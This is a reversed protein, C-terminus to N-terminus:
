MTFNKVDCIASAAQKGRRLFVRKAQLDIIWEMDATSLALMDKTANTIPLQTEGAPRSISVLDGVDRDTIRLEFPGAITSTCTFSLQEFRRFADCGDFVSSISLLFAIALKSM